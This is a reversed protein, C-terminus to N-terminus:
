RVLMVKQTETQQAAELRVFYLGSALGSANLTATHVGVTQMGEFLEAVQRGRLDFLQLTVQSRIPLSYTVKTSANFPNPFVGTLAFEAPTRELNDNPVNLVSMTVWVTDTGDFANHDFVLMGDYNMVRM